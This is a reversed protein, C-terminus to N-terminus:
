TAMKLWGFGTTVSRRVRFTDSIALTITGTVTTWSGGNLQYEWTGSSGDNTFTSYTGAEDATVTLGDPDDGITIGDGPALLFKQVSPGGECPPVEITLTGAGTTISTPTVTNANEDLLVINLADEAPLTTEEAGNVSIASDAIWWEDADDGGVEDGITNAIRINKEGNSPVSWYPAVTVGNLKVTGDPAIVDVAQEAPVAIPSGILAGLSNKLQVASDAIIISVGSPDIYEPTGVPNSASNWMDIALADGAPVAADPYEDGQWYIRVDPAVIEESGGSAISGSDLTYDITNKLTWTAPECEECEECLDDTAAAVAEGSMCEKVAPWSMGAIEACVDCGDGSCNLCEERQEPTLGTDPDNLEECSFDKAHRRRTTTPGTWCDANEPNLKSECGPMVRVETEVDLAFFDFPYHLYQSRKEDFTYRAFIDKGRAPGGGVVKHRVSTFYGEQYKKGDIAAILNQAALDGCNCAGGLRSCNLWAVVRLRSVYKVGLGPEKVRRPYADGEIFVISAYRDDPLLEAITSEECALPDDVTCAVPWTYPAKGSGKQFTIARTLGATKDLWPLDADAIRALLLNAITANM